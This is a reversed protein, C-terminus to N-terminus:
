DLEEIDRDWLEGNLRPLLVLALNEGYEPIKDCFVGKCRGRPISRNLNYSGWNGLEKM